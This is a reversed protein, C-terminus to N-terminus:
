YTFPYPVIQSAYHEALYNALCLCSAIFSTPRDALSNASCLCFTTSSAALSGDCLRPYCVVSDILWFNNM